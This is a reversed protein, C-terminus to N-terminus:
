KEKVSPPVRVPAVRVQIQRQFFSTAADGWSPDGAMWLQIWRGPGSRGPRDPDRTYYRIFLTRAELGSVALDDCFPELVVGPHDAGRIERLVTWKEGDLSYEVGAVTTPVLDLETWNDRLRFSGIPQDFRLEFQLLAESDSGRSHFRAPMGPRPDFLLGRVRSYRKVDSGYPLYVVTEGTVADYDQRPGYAFGDAKVQEWPRRIAAGVKVEVFGGPAIESGEPEAPAPAIPQVVPAETEPVLAFHGSPVEVARGSARQAMRVLGRAVDLRTAGDLISLSLTTGLVTAEAHPTSFTMRRADPQVVVHATLVGRLLVARKAGGSGSELAVRSGPGAALLSGDPYRIVASAGPSVRVEDGARLGSTRIESGKRLVAVGPKSTELLALAPEEGRNWVLIGAAALLVAAAAAWAPWVRRRRLAMSRRLGRSVRDAFPRASRQREVQDVFMKAFAEGDGASRGAALLYGHLAEDELIERRLAEDAGLADLLEREEGGSLIEGALARAWLALVADRDAAM